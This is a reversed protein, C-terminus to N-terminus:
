NMGSGITALEADANGRDALGVDRRWERCRVDQVDIDGGM